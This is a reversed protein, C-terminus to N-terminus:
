KAGWWPLTAAGVLLCVILLLLLSRGLGPLVRRSRMGRSFAAGLSV